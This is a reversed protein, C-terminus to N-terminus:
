RGVGTDRKLLDGMVHGLKSLVKMLENGSIRAVWNPETMANPRDRFVFNQLRDISFDAHAVANRLRHILYYTPHSDFKSDKRILKFHDVIREQTLKKYVADNEELRWLEKPVVILCYLIGAVYAPNKFQYDIDPANCFELLVRRVCEQFDDTGEARDIIMGNVFARIPIETRFDVM